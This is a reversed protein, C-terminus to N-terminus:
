GGSRQVGEGAIGARNQRLARLLSGRYVVGTVRRNGVSEIVPIAGTESNSFIDLALSASVEETLTPPHSEAIDSAILAMGGIEGLNILGRLDNTSIMGRLNGWEDTVLFAEVDTEGLLELIRDLTENPRLAVFRRDIVASLPMNQLPDRVTGRVQDLDFGERLLSATYVTGPRLRSSVLSSVAVTVLLPLILKYEGGSVEYIILMAALPIGLASSVVGAMGVLAFIRFDPVDGPMLSEFAIGMAGGAFAGAVMSPAFTGGTGGSGLTIGTAIMKLVCLLALMAVAVLVGDRPRTAELLLRNVTEYGEGLVGPVFIGVCGLLLGGLAPKIWLPVPVRGFLEHISGLAVGMGAGVSGCVLGLLSFALLLWVSPVITEIVSPDLRTFAPENSLLAESMVAALVAAVVIPAFKRINFDRMILELAFVVGGMPASFVAAIGAASGCGILTGIQDKRVGALNGLWSGVVAGIEVVPGEPGASGGSTITIPATASKIAMGPHLNVKGTAVAKLVNPVGHGGGLHLVRYLLLGVILGGLAPLLVPVLSFEGISWLEDLRNVGSQPGHVIDHSKIIAYRFGTVAIGMFLGTVVAVLLLYANESRSGHHRLTTVFDQM